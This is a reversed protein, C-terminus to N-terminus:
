LCECVLVCVCTAHAYTHLCVCAYVFVCVCVCVCVRACVRSLSDHLSLGVCVIVMTVFFARALCVCV